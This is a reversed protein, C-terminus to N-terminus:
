GPYAGEVNRKLILTDDFCEHSSGCLYVYYHVITVAINYEYTLTDGQTSKASENM